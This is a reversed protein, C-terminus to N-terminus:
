VSMLTPSKSTVLPPPIQGAMLTASSPKFTQQRSKERLVAASLVRLRMRWYASTRQFGRRRWHSCHPVSGVSHCDTAGGQTRGNVPSSQESHQRITSVPEEAQGAMWLKSSPRGCRTAKGVPDFVFQATDVAHQVFNRSFWGRCYLPVSLFPLGCDPLMQNTRPRNETPLM